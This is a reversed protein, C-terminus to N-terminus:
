KQSYEVPETLLTIEKELKKIECRLEHRNEDTQNTTDQLNATIEALNSELQELITRRSQVLGRDVAIQQLESSLESSIVDPKEDIMQELTDIASLLEADTLHEAHPFELQLNDWEEGDLGTIAPQYNINTLESM